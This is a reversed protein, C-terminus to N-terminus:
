KKGLLGGMVFAFIALGAIFAIAIPASNGYGENLEVESAQLHEANLDHAPDGTEEVHAGVIGALILCFISLALLKM